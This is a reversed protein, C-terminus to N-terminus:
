LCQVRRAQRDWDKPWTSVCFLKVGVMKRLDGLRENLNNVMGEALDMCAVVCNDHKGGGPYRQLMDVHLEFTFSTLSGDYDVGSVTVERSGGPGHFTLFNTLHDKPGGGFEDGCDVYRSLFLSTIRLISVHVTLSDMEREQFGKNFINLQELVDALFHVFFWFHYSTAIRYLRNDPFERLM